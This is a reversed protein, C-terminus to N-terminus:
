DKPLLTLLGEFRLPKSLFASIQPHEAARDADERSISSSLIAVRVGQSVLRTGIADLFDWGSMLPMNIDLLIVEPWNAPRESRLWALADTPSLFSRVQRAFLSNSLLSECILNNVPDDDIIFALEYATAPSAGLLPPRTQEQHPYM